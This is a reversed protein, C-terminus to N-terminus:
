DSLHEQAQWRMLFEKPQVIKTYKWRHPFHRINGTVLYHAKSAQACELFRNDDEDSAERLIIKPKVLRANKRIATMARRADHLDIQLRPYAFV